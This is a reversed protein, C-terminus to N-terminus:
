AQGDQDAVENAWQLLFPILCLVHLLENRVEILLNAQHWVGGAEEPLSAMSIRTAERALFAAAELHHTHLLAVGQWMVGVCLEPKRLLRITSVLTSALNAGSFQFEPRYHLTHILVPRTDRSRM